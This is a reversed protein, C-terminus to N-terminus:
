SLDPCTRPYTNFVPGADKQKGADSLTRPTASIDDVTADDPLGQIGSPSRSGTGRTTQTPIDALRARPEMQDAADQLASLGTRM